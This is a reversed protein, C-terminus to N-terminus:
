VQFDSITSEYHLWAFDLEKDQELIIEMFPAQTHEWNM